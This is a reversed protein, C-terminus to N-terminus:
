ICPLSEFQLTMKGDPGTEIEYDNVLMAQQFTRSWSSQSDTGSLVNRNLNQKVSLALEILSADAYFQFEAKSKKKSADDATVQVVAGGGASATKMTQEGLGETYKFTNPIIAINVNNLMLQPAAIQNFQEPM